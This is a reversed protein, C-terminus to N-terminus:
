EMASLNLGARISSPEIARFDNKNEKLLVAAALGAAQGTAICTGMVRASGNAGRDSSLCRGAAIVNKLKQPVLCRYPIDYALGDRVPIRVQETGAGHIDVHHAGRAISDCHEVANIVDERTLTYEGKIRGTERIGVRHAISSISAKEFGPIREEFFRATSAVQEALQPLAASISFDDICNLKAIRTANICVEGRQTSTPTIFAATCPHLKGTEIAEGMIKGNASIAVYPYGANYLAEAAEQRTKKLVTNEALLAENPNDRIFKLLPEFAVDAMRFILSVPQFLGDEDGNFVDGGAMATLNGGGSADIVCSCNIVSRFGNRGVVQLTKLRGQAVAAEIVTSNLLLQVNYKKLLHLAALRLIEPDFCLGYVTRWDCIPGLYGRPNFAKVYESLEDIVGSTCRKGRSTYAGLIPMGSFLDGGITSESEILLTKAGNKASMIAAAIGAAGGGVVIVKM